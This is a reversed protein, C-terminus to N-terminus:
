NSDLIMRLVKQRNQLTKPNTSANVYFDELAQRTPFKQALNILREISWEALTKLLNVRVLGYQSFRGQHVLLHRSEALSAVLDKWFRRSQPSKQVLTAIRGPIKSMTVSPDDSLFVTEIIQWLSLFTDQRSASDMAHGYRLLSTVLLQQMPNTARTIKGILNEVDNGQEKSFPKSAYQYCKTEHFLAEFEDDVDFLGLVPPPLSIALPGPIIQFYRASGYSHIFNVSSRLLRFRYNVQNSAEEPTRAQIDTVLPTLRFVWSLEDRYGVVSLQACTDDWFKRWGPLKRLTRWSTKRFKMGPVNFIRKSKKWPGSIHFPILATYHVLPKSLYAKIERDLEQEFEEWKPKQLGKQRLSIATQRILELALDRNDRVAKYDIKIKHALIEFGLASQLDLSAAALPLLFIERSTLGHIYELIQPKEKASVRIRSM